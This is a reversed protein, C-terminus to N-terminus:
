HVQEFILALLVEGTEVNRHAWTTCGVSNIFCDFHGICRTIGNNHFGLNLNTSAALGAADLQSVVSFFSTEVGVVNQAHVNLTM